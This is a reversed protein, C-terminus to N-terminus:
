ATVGTIDAILGNGPTTGVGSIYVTLIDGAVFSWSGTSTGGSIQSAAAITTSTGSVTVGNKRLEVVLNGSADATGCRFTVSTFTCNRPLRTGMTNTGYGTARTGVTHMFSVDYPLATVDAGTISAFSGLASTGASKLFQGSVGPAITQQAGTATTGAAIIGYATTSTSRGTGGDAVSVDTGGSVYVTGPIESAVRWKSTAANWIFDTDLRNTTVTTTPLAVTSAEFSTGWTIARAATGTISIRIRQGDTPAGTLNTTMSTISVTLGTIIFVDGNDTNIAPTAGATVTVVRPTIRKNTLTQTGDVSVVSGSGTGPSAIIVEGTTAKITLRTTYSHVTSGSATTSATRLRIDGPTGAGTGGGGQIILNPGGIDSGAAAAHTSASLYAEVASYNGITGNQGVFLQAYTSASFMNAALLGTQSDRIGFGSGALNFDYAASATTGTGRSFQMIANGGSGGKFHAIVGTLAYDGQETQGANNLQFKTVGGVQGVILNKAGSGTTTETSSLLLTTYGATSTQSLTTSVSLGVNTGSSTTFTNTLAVGVANTFGTAENMSYRGNVSPIGSILLGRANGVNVYLNRITGTGAAETSVYATNSSWYSRIREYNTAQDTTNYIALPNGNPLVVGGTGKGSLQLDVNTDSGAASIIPASGAVASTFVLRNAASVVPIFDALRSNAGDRIYVSGTGRPRVNININADSGAARITLDSGTASNTIELYNVASATAVLTLAVNGNTDLLQNVQPSTLTKNTLTQTGDTSVLSGSTTSVAAVSIAGTNDVRFKSVGGVQADILNKAGSGTSTETPNILLATYGATSTQTITPSVSLITQTGSSASKSGTVLMAISGASGSGGNVTIKTNGPSLTIQDFNSAGLVLSRSVGTGGADAHIAFKNSTWYMRGREYNTAQDSTNYLSYSSGSYGRVEGVISLKADPTTTGIGVNGTALSNQGGAIFFHSGGNTGLIIDANTGTQTQFRFTNPIAANATGRYQFFGKDIGNEQFNLEVRGATNANNLVVQNGGNSNNSASVGLATVVNSFTKTGTITETGALHVASLDNAKENLATQTATSIPKGLDSTNDVNGLDVDSKDLIVIGTKGAVSSVDASANIKTQLSSDLLVETISGDQIVAANVANSALASNTVSNPALTNSTVANDQITGDPKLSQLLYENLIDGWTGNDSGPQPLRAM